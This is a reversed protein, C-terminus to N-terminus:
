SGPSLYHFVTQIQRGDVRHLALGPMAAADAIPDPKSGLRMTSVVGPAGLLPVGAFSSALATHVHGTLIGIVSSHDRVLEDLDDLNALNMPDMLHHGISVPPHHMALMVPGPAQAIQERAFVLADTGLLGEDRHDIHSDLGILRIHGIDAERNLSTSGDWRHVADLLPQSM